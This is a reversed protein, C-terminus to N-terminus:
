LFHGLVDSLTCIGLFKGDDDTIILANAKTEALMIFVQFLTHKPTCTHIPELRDLGYLEYQSLVKGMDWEFLGPQDLNLSAIQSRRYLDRVKNTQPDIIPITSVRMKAFMSAVEELKTELTATVLEKTVPASRGMYASTRPESYTGVGLEYISQDFLRREESFQTTLYELISQSTVVQLCTQMDPDIVPLRHIGEDRLVTCADLLTADPHLLILEKKPHKQHEVALSAATACGKETESSSQGHRKVLARWTAITHSELVDLLDESTIHAHRVIDTFDSLTIMGVLRQLSPNWLPAGRIEHELLAYLVLRLNINVDFVVLRGSKPMADYLTRSNLFSRIADKGIQITESESLPAPALFDGLNDSQSPTKTQFTSAGVPLIVEDDDDPSYNERRDSSPVDEGWDDRRDMGYTLCVIFTVFIFFKAFWKRVRNLHFVFEAFSYRPPEVLTSNRV